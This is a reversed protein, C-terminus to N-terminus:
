SYQNGQEPVSDDRRVSIQVRNLELEDMFQFVLQGHREIGVFPPKRIASPSFPIARDGIDLSPDRKDEECQM